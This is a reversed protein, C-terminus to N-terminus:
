LMCAMMQLYMSCSVIANNISYLHVFADDVVSIFLHYLLFDELQNSIIRFSLWLYAFRVHSAPSGKCIWTKVSQKRNPEEVWLGLQHRIMLYSIGAWLVSVFCISENVGYIFSKLRKTSAQPRCAWM